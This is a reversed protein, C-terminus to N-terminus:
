TYPSNEEDFVFWGVRNGNTDYLPQDRQGVTHSRITAAATHLMDVVALERNDDFAANDCNIELKFKM